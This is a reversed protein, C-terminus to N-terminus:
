GFINAEPCAESLRRCSEPQNEEDFSAEFDGVLAEGATSDGGLSSCTIQDLISDLTRGLDSVCREVDGVTAGDCGALADASASDCSSSSLLPDIAPPNELCQDRTVECQGSGGLVAEAGVGAMTCATVQIRSPPLLADIYQVIAVCIKMAEEDSVDSLPTKPSVGTDLSLASEGCGLCATLLL